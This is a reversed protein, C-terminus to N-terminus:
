FMMFDEAQPALRNPPAINGNNLAVVFGVHGIKPYDIWADKFEEVWLTRNGWAPDALLVREERIGRFVVFHNYGHFNVPVIIPAYAIADQLTLKGYGIGEYGRNDVYRKLDLLSFGQRMRLLMPHAMYEERQIMAKAIEEEPVLDGHQYHLITALAAAGCSLDWEQVVVGERRIELLSKVVAREAALSPTSGLLGFFFIVAITLSFIVEISRYFQYRLWSGSLRRLLVYLAEITCHFSVQSYSSKMMKM